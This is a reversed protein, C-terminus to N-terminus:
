LVARDRRFNRTRAEDTGNKIKNIFYKDQVKLPVFSLSIGFLTM